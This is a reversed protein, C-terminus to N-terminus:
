CSIHQQTISLPRPLVAKSLLPPLAFLQPHVYEGKFASTRLSSPLKDILTCDDSLAAAAIVLLIRM